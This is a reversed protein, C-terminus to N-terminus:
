GGPSARSADDPEPEVAVDEFLRADLLGVREDRDGAAVVRVDHRRPHRELVVVHRLHDRPDEVRAAGLDVLAQVDRRDGGRGPAHLLDLQHEQVVPLSTRSLRPPPSSSRTRTGTGACRTPLGTDDSLTSPCIRTAPTERPPLPKM